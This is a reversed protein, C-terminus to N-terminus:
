NVQGKTVKMFIDELSNVSEKMSRVKIGDQLMHQMLESLDDQTGDYHVELEGGGKTEVHLVRTHRQASAAAAELQEPPVSITMLQGQSVAQLIESVEGSVVMHGAEIIGVKNCFDSLETLIHSSIFVTKGM